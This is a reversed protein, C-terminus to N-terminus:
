SKNLKILFYKIINIYIKEKFIRIKENIMNNFEIKNEIDKGIQFQTISLEKLSKLQNLLEIIKNKNEENRKILSLNINISNFEITKDENLSDNVENKKKCIKSILIRKSKM